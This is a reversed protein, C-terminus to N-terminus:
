RSRLREAARAESDSETYTVDYCCKSETPTSDYDLNLGMHPLENKYLTSFTFLMRGTLQTNNPTIKTSALRSFDIWTFDYQNKIWEYMQFM